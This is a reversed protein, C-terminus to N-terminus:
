SLVRVFVTCRCNPHAPPLNVPGKPTQFPQRLAVGQPNMEPVPACIDCTREDRTVVWQRSVEQSNVVGQEVAQQWVLDNGLNTARLSETRAITEARHRLMRAAYRQVMTEIKKRDIKTGERIARAVSADFRRDRLARDLAATDGEELAVRYNEVAQAQRDTLGITREVERATVRPNDGAQIGSAVVQRIGARTDDSIQRILNFEYNQVAQVTQPALADFAVALAPRGPQVLVPIYSAGLGAGQNITARLADRFEGFPLDRVPDLGLLAYVGDIDGRAILDALDGISAEDRLAAVAQLFARRVAPELKDALAQVADQHDGAKSM